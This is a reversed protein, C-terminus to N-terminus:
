KPPEPEHTEPAVVKAVDSAIQCIERSDGNTGISRKIHAGTRAGVAAVVSAIGAFIASIIIAVGQYDTGIM